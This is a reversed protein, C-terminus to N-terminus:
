AAALEMLREPEIRVGVHGDSIVGLVAYQRASTDRRRPEKLAAGSENILAAVMPTRITGGRRLVIAVEGSALHVHCGPPYLGFEKALAETMPHGPDRMFMQRGAQDASLADRKFRPSLKSTYVDARQVLQAAEGVEALAAPYGLGGPIEHHQAVADLWDRDTIGALELMEVSRQPHSHLLDHQAQTVPASQQALAGQLELMSINMTLAAKFVSLLAQPSWQLRQAVLYATIATHVSHTVGYQVHANGEQRLIQFISLDPDREVLEVVPAAAEELARRYGSHPSSRLANGVDDMCRRWLAPLQGPSAEAVQSRSVALEGIDVLAGREFLEDLLQHTFIVQGRALLLDQNADRVNFPLPTGVELRQKVVSLQAYQM